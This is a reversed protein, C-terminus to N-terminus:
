GPDSGLLPVGLATGATRLEQDLTALPLSLRHALELYAADYITLRFREALRQTATWLQITTEPDLKIPLDRLFRALYARRVGDLRKRREAVMLGNLAELPWHQPVTAGTEGVRHLLTTTVPTREDEFCWTLAVSNDLVFSM